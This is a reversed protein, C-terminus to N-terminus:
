RPNRNGSLAVIEVGAAKSRFADKIRASAYISLAYQHSNVLINTRLEIKEDCQSAVQVCMGFQAELLMAGGCSPYELPSFSRPALPAAGSGLAAMPTCGGERWLLSLDLYARRPAVRDADSATCGPRVTLM